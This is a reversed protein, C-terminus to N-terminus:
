RKRAQVQLRNARKNSAKKSKGKPRLGLVGKAIGQVLRPLVERTTGSGNGYSLIELQNSFSNHILVPFSYQSALRYAEEMFLRQIKAIKNVPTFTEKEHLFRRRVEKEHDWMFIWVAGREELQKMLSDLEHDTLRREHGMGTAYAADGSAWRDVVIHKRKTKKFVEGFYDYAKAPPKSFHIWEAQLFDALKRSFTTKGVKDIGEIVFIM